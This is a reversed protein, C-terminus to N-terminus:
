PTQRADQQQRAYDAAVGILEPALDVIEELRAREDPDLSQTALRHPADLVDELTWIM